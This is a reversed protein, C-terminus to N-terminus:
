VAEAVELHLAEKAGNRRVGGGRHGNGAPVDAGYQSAYREESERAAHMIREFEENIQLQCCRLEDQLKKRQGLLSELQEEVRQLTVMKAHAKQFLAVAPSQSPNNGNVAASTNAVAPDHAM